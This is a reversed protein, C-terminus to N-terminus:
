APEGIIAPQGISELVSLWLDGTTDVEKRGNCEPDLVGTRFVISSIHGEGVARLSMLFRTHGPALGEQDPAPIMSPNFFAASAYAYEMTFYAGILQRQQPTPDLSAEVLSCAKEFHDDFKGLLDEYRDAFYELCSARLARVAPPDLGMVHEIIPRAREPSAPFFFRAITLTSDRSLRQPLRQVALEVEPM